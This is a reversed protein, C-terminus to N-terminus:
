HRIPDVRCVIEPASWVHRAEIIGAEIPPKDVGMNHTGPFLALAKKLGGDLHPDSYRSEADLLRKSVYYVPM